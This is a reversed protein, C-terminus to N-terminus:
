LSGIVRRKLKEVWTSMKEKKQEKLFSLVEETNRKIETIKEALSKEELARNEEIRGRARELYDEMIRKETQKIEEELTVNKKQIGSKKIRALEDIKLIREIM